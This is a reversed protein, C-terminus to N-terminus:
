FKIFRKWIEYKEYKRHILITWQNNQDVALILNVLKYDKLPECIFSVIYISSLEASFEFKMTFTLVASLAGRSM